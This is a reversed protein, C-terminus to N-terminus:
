KVNEPRLTAIVQSVTDSKLDHVVGLSVTEDTAAALAERFRELSVPRGGVLYSTASTVRISVSDCGNCERLILGGNPTTPATFNRMRVEYARSVMEFAASAPLSAAMAVIALMLIKARM